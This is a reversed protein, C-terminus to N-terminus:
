YAGLLTYRNSTYDLSVGRNVAGSCFPNGPASYFTGKMSSTNKGEIVALNANKSKSFDYLKEYAEKISGNVPVNFEGKHILNELNFDKSNGVILDHKNRTNRM